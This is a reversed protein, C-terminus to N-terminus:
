NASPQDEGRKQQASARGREWEKLKRFASDAGKGSHREGQQDDKDRAPPPQQQRQGQGQGNEPPDQKKPEM